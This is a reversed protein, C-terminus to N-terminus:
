VRFDIRVGAHYGYIRASPQARYVEGGAGIRIDFSETTLIPLEFNVGFSAGSLTESADGRELKTSAYGISAGVELFDLLVGTPVLYVGYFNSTSYENTTEDAGQGEFGYQVELGIKKFMRVGGRVRIMNSDLQDSGFKAVLTDNSFSASTWAYDAGFYLPIPEAAEEDGAGSDDSGYGSDAAASETAESGSYDAGADSGTEDASFSNADGGGDSSFSNADSTDSLSNADAAESSFSNADSADSFSNADAAESAASADDATTEAADMAADASAAADVAAEDVPAEEAAVSEDSVMGSDQADSYSNDQQYDASDGTADQAHAPVALALGLVWVGIM